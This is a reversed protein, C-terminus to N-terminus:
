SLAEGPELLARTKMYAGAAVLVEKGTVALATNHVQEMQTELPQEMRVLPLHPGVLAVVTLCASPLVLAEVLPISNHVHLLAVLLQIVTQALLYLALLARKNHLFATEISSVVGIMVLEVIHDDRLSNALQLVPLTPAHLGAPATALVDMHVAFHFNALRSAQLQALLHVNCKNMQRVLLIRLRHATNRVSSQITNEVALVLGVNLFVFERPSVGYKKVEVLFEM